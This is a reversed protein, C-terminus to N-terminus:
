RYVVVTPIGWPLSGILKRRCHLALYPTHTCSERHVLHDDNWSGRDQSFAEREGDALDCPRSMTTAERGRSRFVGLDSRPCCPRRSWDRRGWAGSRWERTIPSFLDVVRIKESCKIAGIEPEEFSGFQYIPDRAFRILHRRCVREVRAPWSTDDCV